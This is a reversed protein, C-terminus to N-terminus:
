RRGRDRKADEFGQLYYSVRDAENGLAHLRAKVHEPLDACLWLSLLERQVFSVFINAGHVDGAAASCLGLRDRQTPPNSKRAPKKSM